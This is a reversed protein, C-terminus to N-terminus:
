LQRQPSFDMEMSPLQVQMLQVLHEVLQALDDRGRKKKM